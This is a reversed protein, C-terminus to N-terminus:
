NSAPGANYITGLIILGANYYCSHKHSTLMVDVHITPITASGGNVVITVSDVNPWRRM